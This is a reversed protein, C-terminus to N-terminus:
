SIADVDADNATETGNAAPVPEDKMVEDKVSPMEVAPVPKVLEERIWSEEV